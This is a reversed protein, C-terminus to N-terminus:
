VLRLSCMRAQADGTGRAGSAWGWVPPRGLATWGHRRRHQERAARGTTKGRRVKLLSLKERERGGDREIEREREKERNRERERERKTEGERKRDIKRERGREKERKRETERKKAYDSSPKRQPSRIGEATPSGSVRDELYSLPRVYHLSSFGGIFRFFLWCKRNRGLVLIRRKAYVRRGSYM